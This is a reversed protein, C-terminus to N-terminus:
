VYAAFEVVFQMFRHKREQAKDQCGFAMPKTLATTECWSERTPTHDREFLIVILHRNQPKPPDSIGSAFYGEHHHLFVHLLCHKRLYMVEKSPSPDSKLSAKTTCARQSANYCTFHCGSEQQDKQTKPCGHEWSM